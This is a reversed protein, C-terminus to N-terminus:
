LLIHSCSAYTPGMIWAERAIDAHVHLRLSYTPHVRVRVNHLMYPTEAHLTLTLSAGQSVKLVVAEEPSCHLHASPIIVGSVECEGAPGRLICTSAERLDGSVAEKPSIGLYAAETPTVEVQTAAREPAIYALRLSAGSRSGRVELTTDVVYQGHQSIRERISPHEEGFLVRYDEPSLHIHSPVVEVPIVHQM